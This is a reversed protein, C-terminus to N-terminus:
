GWSFFTFNGPKHKEKKALIENAVKQRKDVHIYNPIQIIRETGKITINIPLEFSNSLKVRKSKVNIIQNSASFVTYHPLYKMGISHCNINNRIDLWNTIYFNPLSNQNYHGFYQSPSNGAFIYQFNNIERSLDNFLYCKDHQFPSKSILNDDWIRHHTLLVNIKNKSKAKRFSTNLFTNFKNLSQSSNFLFFNIGPTSIITDKLSKQLEQKKLESNGLIFYTKSNIKKIYQNKIAENDLESDGLIFVYDPNERNLEKIFENRSSDTKLSSVAHGFLLVKLSDTKLHGFNTKQFNLFSFILLVKLKINRCKFNM